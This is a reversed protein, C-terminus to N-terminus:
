ANVLVTRKTWFAEMGQRKITRYSKCQRLQILSMSGIGLVPLKIKGNGIWQVEGGCLRGWDGVQIFIEERHMTASQISPHGRNKM